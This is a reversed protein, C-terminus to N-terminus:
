NGHTLVIIPQDYDSSIIAGDADAPAFTFERKILNFFLPGESPPTVSFRLDLLRGSDITNTNGASLVLFRLSTDPQIMWLQGTEPDEYLSKNADVLAQGLTASDLSSAANSAMCLDIIRPRPENSTPTYHVGLTVETLKGNMVTKSVVM